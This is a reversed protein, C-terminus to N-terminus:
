FDFTHEEKHSINASNFATSKYLHTPRKLIILAVACMEIQSIKVGIPKPIYILFVSSFLSLNINYTYDHRDDVKCNVTVRNYTRNGLAKHPM